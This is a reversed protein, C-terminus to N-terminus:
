PGPPRRDLRRAHVGHRPVAGRGADSGSDFVTVINPHNSLAGMARREREFRGRDPADAASGTLIKIAVDRALGHQRARYVVGFGGRGIEVEGGYGPIGLRSPADEQAM